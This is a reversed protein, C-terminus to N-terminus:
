PDYATFAIALTALLKSALYLTIYFYLMLVYHIISQISFDFSNSKRIKHKDQILRFPTNINM